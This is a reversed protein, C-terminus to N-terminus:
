IEVSSHTFLPVKQVNGILMILLITTYFGLWPRVMFIHITHFTITIEPNNALQSFFQLYRVYYPIFLSFFGDFVFNCFPIFYARTNKLNGPFM